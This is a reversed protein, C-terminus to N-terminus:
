EENTSLQAELEKLRKEMARLQKRMEGVHNAAAIRKFTERHNAAPVGAQIDKAPVDNMVASRAMLIADDGVKTHDKMGVQGGMVVRDGITCSGALGVQAAFLCNEGITNNHGIMVLNDLKTGKKITTPGLNARDITTNSGIEVHDEIVVNGLSEIKIIETNQGTIEGGAQASEISGAEPTVYAFGDGGISVNYHIIVNNGIMCRDGICTNAYILCDNGIHVDAGLTVHPLVRVNNGIITRPGVISYPGIMANEGITASPDVIATPHIGTGFTEPHPMFVKLLMGLALRPRPHTLYGQFLGEPIDQSELVKEAILASSFGQGMHQRAAELQPIVEPDLVVIMSQPHQIHKPHALTSVSLESNGHLTAGTLQALQGLPFTNQTASDSTTSATMTSVPSSGGQDLNLNNSKM